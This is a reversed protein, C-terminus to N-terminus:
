GREVKHIIIISSYLNVLELKKLTDAPPGRIMGKTNIFKYSDLYHM